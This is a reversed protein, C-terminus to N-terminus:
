ESLYTSIMFIQAHMSSIVGGFLDHHVGVAVACAKGRDLPSIHWIRFDARQPLSTEFYWSYMPQLDHDTHTACKHQIVMFQHKVRYSFDFGVNPSQCFLTVSKHIKFAGQGRLPVNLSGANTIIRWTKLLIIFLIVVQSACTIPQRSAKHVMGAVQAHQNILNIYMRIPDFTANM